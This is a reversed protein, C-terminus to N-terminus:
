PSLENQLQAALRGADQHEPDIALCSMLWTRAEGPDSYKFMTEAIRYRLDANEPEQQVQTLNVELERLAPEAAAIYDFHTLAENQRGVQRLANALALRIETDWQRQHWGM